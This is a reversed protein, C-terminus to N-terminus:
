NPWFESVPTPVDKVGEPVTGEEWEYDGYREAQVTMDVFHTQGYRTCYGALQALDLELWRYPRPVYYRIDWVTNCDGAMIDFLPDFSGIVYARSCSWAPLFLDLHVIARRKKNDLRASVAASNAVFIGLAAELSKLVRRSSCSYLAETHLHFHVTTFEALAQMATAKVEAPVKGDEKPPGFTWDMGPMVPIYATSTAAMLRRAEDFVQTCTQLLQIHTNLEGKYLRNLPVQEKHMPLAFTYIENRVEGPLDFLT